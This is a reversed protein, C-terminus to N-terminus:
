QLRAVVEGGEPGKRGDASFTHAVIPRKRMREAGRQTPLPGRMTRRRRMKSLLRASTSTVYRHRRKGSLTGSNCSPNIKAAAYSSTFAIWATRKSYEQKALMRRLFFCCCPKTAQKCSLALVFFFFSSRKASHAPVNMTTTRGYWLVRRLPM